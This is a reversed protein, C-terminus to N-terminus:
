ATSDSKSSGCAAPTSGAVLLEQQLLNVKKMNKVGRSFKPKSSIIVYIKKFFLLFSNESYKPANRLFSRNTLIRM